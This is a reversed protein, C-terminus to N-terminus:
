SCPKVEVPKRLWIGLGYMMIIVLGIVGYFVAAAFPAYGTLGSRRAYGGVWFAADEILGGAIGAVRSIVDLGPAPPGGGVLAGVLWDLFGPFLFFGTISCASILGVVFGWRLAWSRREARRARAVAGAAVSGLAPEPANKIAEMLALDLAYAERCRTCGEMHAKLARLDGTSGEGEIVREFLREVDGCAFDGAV